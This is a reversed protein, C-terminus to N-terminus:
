EKTEKLKASRKKLLRMLFAAVERAMEADVTGVFELAGFPRESLKRGDVAIAVLALGEAKAHDRQKKTWTAM